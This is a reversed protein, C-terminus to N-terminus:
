ENGEIPTFAAAPNCAPRSDSEPVLSKGTVPRHVFDALAAKKSRGVAKEAKAPSLLKKEWPDVGLADLAAAAKDEDLWKRNGIKDVLKWGPVEEGAALLETARAEVAKLYDRVAPALALIRSVDAPALMAANPERTAPAEDDDDDDDDLAEVQFVDKAVQLTRARLAPCEVKAPCWRCQSDGPVLEADPRLAAVIAPDLVDRGWALLDHATTPESTRWVEGDSTRPQVIHRYVRTSPSLARDRQVAMLAYIDLQANDDASVIVGAGYKFDFVHLVDAGRLICDATGFVQDSQALKLKQEVEITAGDLQAVTRVADLYVQVAAIMEDDVTFEGGKSKGGFWVAANRERRLCDEAVTHAFTGRRADEGATDPYQAALAVSGPCRMWRHAASPSLKAHSM